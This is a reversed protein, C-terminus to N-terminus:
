LSSTNLNFLLNKPNIKTETPITKKINDNVNDAGLTNHATESPVLITIFIVPVVM